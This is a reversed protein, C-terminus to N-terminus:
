RVIRGRVMVLRAPNEEVEKAVGERPDEAFLVLDADYGVSIRGLRGGEGISKAPNWTFADLATVGDIKQHTEFPAGDVHTRHIACNMGEIPDMAVVPYDTGFVLLAGASAIEKWAFSHRIREPGLRPPYYSEAATDFVYHSPQMSAAVGLKAFRKADSPDLSEIHEVRNVLSHRLERKSAEFADLAMRVGRDGIAHLVAPYGARNARIVLRDLEAQSYAPEGETGPHDSYPALMAATYSGIVGDVFGKFASVRVLGARPLSKDFDVIRKFQHESEDISAWLYARQSLKGQADLDAYAQMTSFGLPGGQQATFGATLGVEEGKLIYKKRDEDTDSPMRAYILSTANELFVGAPYGDRERVVTGGEPDRTSRSVGAAEIAASNVWLQHGDSDLLVVPRKREAVDLDRRSPPTKGFEAAVWGRGVIWPASPNAKAYEKVAEQIEPLSSGKVQVQFYGEGGSIPHSHADHFGPLLFGQKADVLRCSGLCSRRLSDTGGVAAIKGDKIAVSDSALFSFIGVYPRALTGVLNANVIVADPSPVSARERTAGLTLVALTTGIALISKKNM